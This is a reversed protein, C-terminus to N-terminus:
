TARKWRSRAPWPAQPGAAAAAEGARASGSYDRRQGFAGHLDEASDGVVGFVAAHEGDAVEIAYVGAVDLHEGLGTHCRPQSQDRYVPVPPRPHGSSGRPRRRRM